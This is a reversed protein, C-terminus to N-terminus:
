GPTAATARRRQLQQLVVRLRVTGPVRWCGAPGSRRCAVVDVLDQGADILVDAVLDPQVDAVVPVVAEVAVDEVGRNRDRRDRLRADVLVPQEGVGVRQPRVQEVVEPDAIVADVEVGHIRERHAPRGVGPGASPMGPKSPSTLYLLGPRGLMLTLLKLPRPAPPVFQYWNSM